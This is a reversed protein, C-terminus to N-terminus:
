PIKITIIGGQMSYITFIYKRHVKLQSTAPPMLRAFRSRQEIRSLLRLLHFVNDNGKWEVNYIYMYLYIYIQIYIYPIKKYSNKKGFIEYM